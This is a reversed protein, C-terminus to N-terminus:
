EFQPLLSNLLQDPQLSLCNLRRARSSHQLCFRSATVAELGVNGFAVNPDVHLRVRLGTLTAVNIVTGGLTAAFRPLGPSPQMVAERNILCSRLRSRSVSLQLGTLRLFGSLMAEAGLMQHCAFENTM